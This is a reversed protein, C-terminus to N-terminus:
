SAVKPKAGKKGRRAYMDAYERYYGYHGSRADVKNIVTGIPEVGGTEFRARTDVLMRRTTRGAEVVVLTGKSARALSLADAVALMPPADVIVMDYSRGLEQLMQRLRLSEVLRGPNAPLPGSTLV